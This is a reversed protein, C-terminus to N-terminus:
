LKQLDPVNQPAPPGTAPNVLSGYQKGPFPVKSSDRGVVDETWCGKAWRGGVVKTVKRVRRNGGSGRATAVQEEFVVMFLLVTERNVAVEKANVMRRTMWTDRMVHKGVNACRLRSLL